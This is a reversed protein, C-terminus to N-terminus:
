NAPTTYIHQTHPAITITHIHRDMCRHMWGDMWGDKWADMCGHMRKCVCKRTPQRQSGKEQTTGQGQNHSTLISERRCEGRHMCVHWAHSETQPQTTTHLFPSFAPLPCLCLTLTHTHTVLIFMKERKKEREGKRQVEGERREKELKGKKKREERYGKEAKKEKKPVDESICQM